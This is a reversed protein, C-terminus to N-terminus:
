SQRTRPLRAAPPLSGGSGDGVACSRAGPGATSVAMPGHTPIGARSRPCTPSPLDVATVAEVGLGALAQTIDIGRIRAHPHLSSRFSSRSLCVCIPSMVAKAACFANTKSERSVRASAM